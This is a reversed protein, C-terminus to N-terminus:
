RDLARAIRAVGERFAEPEVLLGLVLTEDDGFDFFYGPQALVGEEEVVKSGPPMSGPTIGGIDAHHGRSGVYFLLQNSSFVPTIVTVDPLHTGGNYPANLVYVDGDGRFLGKLLERHHVPSAAMLEDPIRMDTSRTGCGLVRDVLWGFLASGVRIHTVHDVRSEMTVSRVGLESELLERVDAIFDREDRNFTLRVRSLGRERQRATPM